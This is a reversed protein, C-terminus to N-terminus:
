VRDLLFWGNMVLAQALWQDVKVWETGLPDSAMWSNETHSFTLSKRPFRTQARRTTM